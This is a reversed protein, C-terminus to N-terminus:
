VNGTNGGVSANETLGCGQDLRLLPRTSRATEERIEVQKGCVTAALPQRGTYLLPEILPKPLIYFVEAELGLFVRHLRLLGEAGAPLPAEGLGLLQTSPGPGQALNPPSTLM